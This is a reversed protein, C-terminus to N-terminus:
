ATGRRATISAVVSDADDPSQTLRSPRQARHTEDRAGDAAPGWPPTTKSRLASRAGPWAPFRQYRNIPDAKDLAQGFARWTMRYGALVDRLKVFGVNRDGRELAGVFGRDLGGLFAMSEQTQRLEVRRAHLVTALPQLAERKAVAPTREIHPHPPAEIPVIRITDVDHMATGLIAWTANHAAVMQRLSAFSLDRDGREAQGVVSRGIGGWWAIYEQTACAGDVMIAGRFRRLITGLKDLLESRRVAHDISETM